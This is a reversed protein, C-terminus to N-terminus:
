CEACRSYALQQQLVHAGTKYSGPWNIKKLCQHLRSQQGDQAKNWISFYYYVTNWKPFVEPLMRWQCGSKLLYLIACFVEYLDVKRPATKKRGSELLPRIEEFQERTIDSPYQKRM